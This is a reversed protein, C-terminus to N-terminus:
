IQPRKHIDQSHRLNYPEFKARLSATFSLPYGTCFYTFIPWLRRWGPKSPIEDIEDPIAIAICVEVKNHKNCYQVITSELEVMLHAPEVM